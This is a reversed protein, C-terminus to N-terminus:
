AGYSEAEEQSRSCVALVESRQVARMAPIMRENTRSTSLLGWRAIKDPM